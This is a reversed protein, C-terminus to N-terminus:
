AEWGVQGKKPQMCPTPDTQIGWGAAAVWGVEVRGTLPRPVSAGRRMADRCRGPPGLRLACAHSFFSVLIVM